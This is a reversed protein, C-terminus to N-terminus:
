WVSVAGERNVAASLSVNIRQTEAINVKLDCCKFRM